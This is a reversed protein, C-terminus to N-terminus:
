GSLRRAKPTLGYRISSGVSFLGGKGPRWGLFTFMTQPESCLTGSAIGLIAWLPQVKGELRASGGGRITGTNRLGLMENGVFFVGRDSRDIVEANDRRTFLGADEWLAVGSVGSMMRDKIVSSVSASITVGFFSSSVIFAKGVRVNEQSSVDIKPCLAIVSNGLDAIM